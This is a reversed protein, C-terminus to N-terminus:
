YFTQYNNIHNLPIQSLQFNVEKNEIINTIFEKSIESLFPIDYVM